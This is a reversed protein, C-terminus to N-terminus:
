RPVDIKLDEFSRLFIDLGAEVQSSSVAGRLVLSTILGRLMEREKLPKDMSITIIKFVLEPLLDGAALEETSQCADRSSESM